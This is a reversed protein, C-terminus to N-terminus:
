NVPKLCTKLEFIKAILEIFISSPQHFDQKLELEKDYVLKLVEELFFISVEDTKKIQHVLAQPSLKPFYSKFEEMPILKMQLSKIKLSNNLAYRMQGFFLLLESAENCEPKELFEKKYILQDIWSFDLEQLREPLLTKVQELTIKKTEASMLQASKLRQKARDLQGEEHDLVYTLAQKDISFGEKKIEAQLLFLLRDKKHWPKEGSLDLWLMQNKLENYFVQIGATSSSLLYSQFGSSGVMQLVFPVDKKKLKDLCCYFSNSSSEWLSLQALSDLDQPLVWKKYPGSVIFEALSLLEESNLGSLGVVKIQSNDLLLNHYFASLSELKM